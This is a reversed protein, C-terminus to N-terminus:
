EKTSNLVAEKGKILRSINSRHRLLLLLSMLTVAITLVPDHMLWWSVFPAILTAIIAGLSSIRTIAIVLAWCSILIGGLLWNLGLFAGMATAVGKGGKFGFFIPYIHGLLTALMVGAMVWAPLALINAVLCPAFGKCGDGLLTIIAPLKGGIRLVNTAGPNNSGQSRPDPLGWLKCVLIASSVSGILYSILILLLYILM